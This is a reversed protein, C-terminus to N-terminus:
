LNFYRNIQKLCIEKLNEKNLYAKTWEVISELTTEINWQPYWNLEVKAKSCDLKLYNAEHPQPNKDVEFGAGNGWLECIRHTIWEVNQADSDDPGLNWGGAFEPGKEYLAKALFLYGTLPELVHQWPRIAYPSRIQVKEGKIISRIFDPILRDEAWDGGGIVNGARASALAVGHTQYEKSNFYSNRYAATALESCGKSNSYPDYGGMPESERYGWHWERNEYCKDTTVNVVAKIGRNQRIAELLNVTGMVNIAYTEVPNKYSERVLPQAAMHIVIEPQNVEIAKILMSLDRVDGIIHTIEKEIGIQEFLSPTTPPELAYGIVKAGMQNLLLCIWSGKFGTHGTIFVKKGKYFAALSKYDVM